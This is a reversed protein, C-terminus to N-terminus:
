VKPQSSVASHVAETAFKTDRLRALNRGEGGRLRRFLRKSLISRALRFRVTYRQTGGDSEKPAFGALNSWRKKSEHSLSVTEELHTSCDIGAFDGSRTNIRDTDREGGINHNGRSVLRWRACALIRRQIRDRYLKTKSIGNM